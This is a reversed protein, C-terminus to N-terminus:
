SYNLGEYKIKDLKEATAKLNRWSKEDIGYSTFIKKIKKDSLHHEDRLHLYNALYGYMTKPIGSLAERMDKFNIDIGKIREKGKETLKFVM